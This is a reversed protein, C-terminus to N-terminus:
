RVLASRRCASQVAEKGRWAVGGGGGRRGARPQRRLPPRVGADGVEAAPGTAGAPYRPARAKSQSEAQAQTPRSKPPNASVAGSRTDTASEKRGGRRGWRDGPAPISRRHDWDRRPEIGGQPPPGEGRYHPSRGLRCVARGLASPRIASGRGLSSTASTSAPDSPDPASPRSARRHPAASARTPPFLTRGTPSHRKTTASLEARHRRRRVVMASLREAGAGRRARAAAPLRGAARPCWEPPRGPRASARAKGRRRRLGRRLPRAARRRRRPAQEGAGDATRLRHLGRLRLRLGRIQLSRPCSRGAATDWVGRQRHRVQYAGPTSRRVPPAPHYSGTTRAGGAEARGPVDGGGAPGRLEALPSEWGRWVNRPAARRPTAQHAPGSPPAPSSEGRVTSSLRAAPAASIASAGYSAGVAASASSAPRQPGVQRVTEARRRDERRRAAPGWAPPRPSAVSKPRARIGSVSTKPGARLIYPRVSIPVPRTGPRSRWGAESSVPRANSDSADSQQRPPWPCTRTTPEPGAGTEM